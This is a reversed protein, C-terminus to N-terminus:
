AAERDCSFRELAGARVGLYADRWAGTLDIMAWIWSRGARCEKVALHAYLAFREAEWPIGDRRDEQLWLRVMTCPDSTAVVDLSPGASSPTRDTLSWCGVVRGNTAGPSGYIVTLWACPLPSSFESARSTSVPIETHAACHRWRM